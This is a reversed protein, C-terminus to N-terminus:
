FFFIFFSFITNGIFIYAFLGAWQACITKKWDIWLIMAIVEEMWTFHTGNSVGIIGMIFEYLWLIKEWEKWQHSAFRQYIYLLVFCRRHCCRLIIFFFYRLILLPVCAFLFFYYYYLYYLLFHTGSNFHYRFICQFTGLLRGLSVRLHYHPMWNWGRNSYMKVSINHICACLEISFM